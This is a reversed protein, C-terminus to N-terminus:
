YVQTSRNKEEQKTYGSDPNAVLPSSVLMAGLGCISFYRSSEVEEM